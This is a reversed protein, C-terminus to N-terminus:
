VDQLVLENTPIAASVFGNGTKTPFQVTAVTLDASFMIIEGTDCDSLAKVGLPVTVPQVISGVQYPRVPRKGQEYQVLDCIPVFLGDSSEICGITDLLAKPDNTRITCVTRDARMVRITDTTVTM